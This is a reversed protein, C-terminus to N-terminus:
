RRTAAGSRRVRDVLFDATALMARATDAQEGGILYSGHVALTPTGEIRYAATLQIARSVRSEVGFSRYAAGFAEADFQRSKLWETFARENTTNLRSGHIAEFLAAHAQPGAGIAELAYYIAADHGWRENFVAPVRQLVVDAPLTRSWAELAPEFRYCHICGYWFFELVEIRGDSGAPLPSPLAVYDRGAVPQARSPTALALAAVGAAAAALLGRRTPM